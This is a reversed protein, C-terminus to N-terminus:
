PKVAVDTTTEAMNCHINLLASFVYNYKAVNKQSFLRSSFHLQTKDAWYLIKNIIDFCYYYFMYKLFRLTKELESIYPLRVHRYSPYAEIELEENLRQVRSFSLTEDLWFRRGAWKQRGSIYIFWMGHDCTGVIVCDTCLFITMGPIRNPSTNGLKSASVVIPLILNWSNKPFEYTALYILKAESRAPRISCSRDAKIATQCM